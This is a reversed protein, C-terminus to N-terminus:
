KVTLTISGPLKVIDGAPFSERIDSIIIVDGKQVKKLQDKMESTLAATNSTEIYPKGVKPIYNFNFRHITFKIGEFAFDPLRVSVFNLLILEGKSIEGSEKSGFVPVPLPVSAVKFQKSSILKKQGNTQKLYVSINVNSGSENYPVFINYDGSSKKSVSGLDSIVELSDSGEGSWAVQIPNDLGAYLVALANMEVVATTPPNSQAIMMLGSFIFAILLIM